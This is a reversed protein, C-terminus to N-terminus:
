ERPLDDQLHAASTGSVVGVKLLDGRLPFILLVLFMLAM